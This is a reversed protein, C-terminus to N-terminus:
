EATTSLVASGWALGGAVAVGGVVVAASGSWVLWQGSENWETAAADRSQYSAAATAPFAADDVNEAAAAVRAEGDLFRLYPQVGVVGAAVGGVAVLGGVGAVVFPAAIALASPPEPRGATNEVLVVVKAVQAGADVVIREKHVLFGEDGIAIEHEGPALNGLVVGEAVPVRRVGDVLVSASNPQVKLDIAGLKADGDFFLEVLKAAAEIQADPDIPLLATVQRRLGGSEVHVLRLEVGVRDGLRTAAGAIVFGVDAVKGIQTVCDVEFLGCDIGLAQASDTLAETTEQSQMVFGGRTETRARLIAAIRKVENESLGEVRLPLVAVHPLELQAPASTVPQASGQPLVVPPGAPVLLAFAAVVLTM